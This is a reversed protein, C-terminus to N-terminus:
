ETRLSKVPNMLAAKISRYSITLFAILITTLGALAFVWWEIEIRYAFNQLWKNMFYYGLPFAVLMSLLILKLFDITLMSVIQSVSSGLVKRIGIEKLRKQAIFTVLGFLGLCAVFITLLAFIRLIVNMNQERIYTENYLHDLFAYDFIEGSGLFDWKNKMFSLLKSMDATKSKVILGTVENTSKLMMLPEISEHLSRSHFDKVVGIINLKQRGGKLNTSKLLTQGIPNENLGFVEIATENIIVNNTESGLKKSFNRGEVIEMGLTPIYEEDIYFEYTRRLLETNTPLSIMQMNNDTPGAPIFSSSTISKVSPNKLLENKFGPVDKGLLFADRIVTLHEREYGVDKNQIYNMQQSVVLTGIILSVSIVFQFVVLGGRVGKSNGSLFKNKLAQIPRFSSMFFAPYGGAMFSISLTLVTLILLTQPTLLNNIELSKDSLQNFYPLLVLLVLVGIVMAIVTAIFSETLFQFILQRKKSGLIKRMGIEKVRKSAGATSLNIFNICAILLMFLAIAAFMYITNIDGGAEFDGTGTFDSYLHIDTLPQVYLGVENGSELFEEYTMGLADNLQSGMYKEVIAPLKAEFQALETGDELLLYSTYSGNMWRQNKADENGKMSAFLDFHFHSSAPVEEIIGTVTYQGQGEIEISKNLPNEKGFYIEAQSNTLIITNPRSLATKPNGKLFPLTFLEFFNPDVFVMKGRRISNEKYTVKQLGYTTSIRTADVVEPFERKLTGAVPAPVSSERLIEDGLKAKLTVRVMQDAKENYRDYSFEDLIFLTIILCVAIGISLGMINIAFSVKNKIITRWATKFYNKLM